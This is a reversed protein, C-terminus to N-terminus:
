GARAGKPSPMGSYGYLSNVSCKSDCALFGRTVAVHAKVTFLQCANQGSPHFMLLAASENRQMCSRQVARCGVEKTEETMFQQFNGEQSAEDTEVM